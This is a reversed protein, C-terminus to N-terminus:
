YQRAEDGYTYALWISVPCSILAGLFDWCFFTSYKVGTAGALFFAPARIGALFRAIFITKSGHRRFFETTRDLHEKNLIRKFLRYRLLGTGWRSGLV